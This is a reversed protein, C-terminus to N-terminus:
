VRTLADFVGAMNLRGYGWERSPYVIDLDRTAGRVLYNKVNTSNVRPLNQETVAWQLFQAAGGATFAAAISSGSRKGVATSVNVGPAALDPKARGERTYGRGSEPYFSNNFDDYTTVGIAEWAASPGTLTVYPSPELFTVPATLFASIPLWAHFLAYNAMEEEAVQLTWIGPGPNAFRIFLLQAGSGTEVREADIFLVTKEYVFRYTATGDTDARIDRVTEGGPSRLTFRFQYPQMGWVTLTFGEVGEAVRVEVSRQLGNTENGVFAGRQFAGAFHHQQNGENGGCIVVARGIKIAILDLIRELTATGSHATLNTGLGFCIVLPLGLIDAQRDLYSLGELIDTESYCVADDPVFYYERDSQPAQRLRVVLLRSDPAAGAFRRGGDLISGAAVSAMATGHGIEDTVPVISRPDGSQLAENIEQESYVRNTEQDWISAIRTGGDSRRFAELEYRIGTDVFGILVGRGTLSLPEQQVALIGSEILANSDFLAEPAGPIVPEQMLGYVFPIKGYAM